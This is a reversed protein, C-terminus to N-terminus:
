GEGSQACRPKVPLLGNEAILAASASAPLVGISQRNGSTTSRPPPEAPAAPEAKLSGHAIEKLVTGDGRQVIEGVTRDSLSSASRRPQASRRGIDSMM